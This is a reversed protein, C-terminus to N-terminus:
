AAAEGEGAEPAKPAKAAEARKKVAALKRVIRRRVEEMEEPHHEAEADAVADKHMKLLRLALANPYEHTKDVTGNARTVTKVTGNMARDLLMMELKAYGECLAGAWEARFEASRKRLDYVGRASMRVRRLSAAVNCTAALEEIFKRQKAATWGGRRTKRMQPKKGKGLHMGVRKM